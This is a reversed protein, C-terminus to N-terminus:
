KGAAFFNEGTWKGGWDRHFFVPRSSVGAYATGRFPGNEARGARGGEEEGEGELRCRERGRRPEGREQAGGGHVGDDRHDRGSRGPGEEDTFFSWSRSSGARPLDEEHRLERHTVGTRPSRRSGTARRARASAACRRWGATRGSGRTVVDVGKEHLCSVRVCGPGMLTYLIEVAHVGYHYLGPNRPVDSKGEFYPAPGFALARAAQGEKFHVGNDLGFFLSGESSGAAYIRGAADEAGANRKM